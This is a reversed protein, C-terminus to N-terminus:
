DRRDPSKRQSPEGRNPDNSYKHQEGVFVGQNRLAVQAFQVGGEEGHVAYDRHYEKQENRQIQQPRQPYSDCNRPPDIFPTAWRSGNLAIKRDENTATASPASCM